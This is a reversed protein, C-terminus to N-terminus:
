MRGQRDKVFIQSPVLDLIQRLQEQSDRALRTAQMREEAESALTEYSHLVEDSRREVLARAKERSEAMRMAVVASATLLLGLLLALLPWQSTQRELHDGSATGAIRWSRGGFELDHPSSSLAGRTGALLAPEPGTVDEVLVSIEGAEPPLLRAVDLLLAVHGQLEGSREGWHHRVPLAAFVRSGDVGPLALPGSLALGGSEAARELVATLDPRLALGMEQGVSTREPGEAFAVRGSQVDGGPVREIWLFARLAANRELASATFTRFEKADVERSSDYFAVVSRAQELATTCESQARAVLQAAGLEFVSGAAGLEERRLMRWLLLSCLVGALAVLLPGLSLLREWTWARSREETSREESMSRWERSRRPPARRRCTVFLTVNKAAGSAQPARSKEGGRGPDAGAAEVSARARGRPGARSSVLRAWFRRRSRSRGDRAGRRTAWSRWGSCGAEAM